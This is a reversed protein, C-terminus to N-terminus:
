EQTAIITMAYSKDVKDSTCELHTEEGWKARIQPKCVVNDNDDADKTSVQMNVVAEDGDAQATIDIVYGKHECIQHQGDELVVTKEIKEDGVQITTELKVAAVALSPAFFALALASTKKM